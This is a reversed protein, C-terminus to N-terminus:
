INKIFRLPVHKKILVEAQLLEKNEVGWKKIAAFDIKSLYEYSAWLSAWAATANKNCFRINKSFLIRPDIELVIRKITRWDRQTAAFMPPKDTFSLRVYNELWDRQDLSRSLDNWGPAVINIGKKECYERSYLWWEKKISEVNRSDTIHYVKINEKVILDRIKERDDSIIDELFIDLNNYKFDDKFELSLKPGEFKKDDKNLFFRAVYTWAKDILFGDDTTQYYEKWSTPSHKEM